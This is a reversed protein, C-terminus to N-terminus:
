EEAWLVLILMALGALAFGCAAMVFGFQFTPNAEFIPTGHHRNPMMTFAPLILCAGLPLAAYCLRRVMARAQFNRM